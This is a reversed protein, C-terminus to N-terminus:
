RAGRKAPFRAAIVAAASLAVCAMLPLRYRIVAHIAGYVATLSAVGLLLAPARLWASRFRWLGWLGLPVIWADSLLCALLLLAYSHPYARKYPWLRWFKFVGAIARSAFIWPHAAIWRLGAVTLRGSREAEPLAESERYIIDNTVIETQRPTGLDEPPVILAQYFEEGGHTSGPVFAGHVSWNRATWLGFALLVPAAYTLARRVRDASPALAFVALGGLAVAPLFTSNLLALAAALAGSALPWGENEDRWSTSALVFATFLFAAVTERFFYASYFVSQPYAAWIALAGLAVREDFLRRGILWVLFGTAAGLLCQLVIILVPRPGALKYVAAILLPFVPERISTSEGPIM